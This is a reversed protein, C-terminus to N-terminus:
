SPAELVRDAARIVERAKARMEDEFVVAKV